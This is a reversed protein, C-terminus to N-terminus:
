LIFLLGNSWHNKIFRTQWKGTTIFIMIQYFFGVTVSIVCDVLGKQIKLLWHRFYKPQRM